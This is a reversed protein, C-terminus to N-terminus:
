LWPLEIDIVQITSLLFLQFSQRGYFCVNSVLFIMKTSGSYGRILFHPCYINVFIVVSCKLVFLLAHLQKDVPLAIKV